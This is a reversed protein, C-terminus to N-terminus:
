IAAYYDEMPTIYRTVHESLWEGVNSPNFWRFSNKDSCALFCQKMELLEVTLRDKMGETSPYLLVLSAQSSLEPHKVESQGSSRFMQEHVEPGLDLMSIHACYDKARM